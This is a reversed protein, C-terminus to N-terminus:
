VFKLVEDLIEVPKNVVVDCGAEILQEPYRLGWSVGINLSVGLAIGTKIDVPTDGIWACESPLVGLNKAIESPVTPDPKLPAGDVAGRVEDFIGPFLEEVVVRTSYDQKNSLVALKISKEKLKKLMETTGPFEKTLYGPNNDYLAKYDSLITDLRDLSEEGNEILARKILNKAGQGVFEACRENTIPKMGYKKLTENVYYTITTITDLITGDLDFICLKIM